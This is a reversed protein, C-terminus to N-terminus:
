LWVLAANILGSIFFAGIWSDLRDFFGGHGPILHGSDKVGARRKLWSEFLDGLQAFISVIVTMILVSKLDMRSFEDPWITFLAFIFGVSLLLGGLAGAWTKSPSLKPALKPGGVARGVFYAGTDTLIVTSALLLFPIWGFYERFYYASAFGALIYAFVLVKGPINRVLFWAEYLVALCLIALLAFFLEGGVLLAGFGIALFVLGSIIRQQLETM